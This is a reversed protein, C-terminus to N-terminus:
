ENITLLEIQKRRKLTNRLHIFNWKIAMINGLFKEIFYHYKKPYIFSRLLTAFPSFGCNFLLSIYMRFIRFYVISFRIRARKLYYEYNRINEGTTGSIHHYSRAKSACYTPFGMLKGRYCFDLDETYIFYDEDVFGVKQLIERHFTPSGVYIVPTEKFIFTDISKKHGVKKGHGLYNINVGAEDILNTGYILRTTGTIINFEFKKLQKVLEEVWNNFVYEDTNFDFSIIEGSSAKIGLNIAEGVGVRGAEIVLIEPFNKLVFEVSGDTSGADVFIVEYNRYTQNMLNTLCKSLYKRGQYNSIIISVKM